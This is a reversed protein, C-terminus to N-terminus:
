LTHLKEVAAALVIIPLLVLGNVMGAFYWRAVSASPTAQTHVWITATLASVLVVRLARRKGDSVVIGPLRERLVAAASVAMGELMAGAGYKPLPLVAQRAPSNQWPLAMPQYLKDMCIYPPVLHVRFYARDVSRACLVFPKREEGWMM